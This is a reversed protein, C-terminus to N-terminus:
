RALEARVMLEALAAGKTQATWGLERQAKAANGCLCEADVPRFFRPSVKLVIAGTDTRHAVENVGEGAFEVPIDAAAFAAQAFERVTCTEGTALM